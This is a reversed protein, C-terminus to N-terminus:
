TPITQESSIFKKVRRQDLSGMKGERTIISGCMRPPVNSLKYGVQRQMTDEQQVM